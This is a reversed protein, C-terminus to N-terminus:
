ASVHNVVAMYHKGDAVKKGPTIFLSFTGLADNQFSYTGERLPRNASGSFVLLYCDGPRAEAQMTPGHYIKGPLAEVSALRFTLVSVGSSLKFKESVHKAFIAQNWHALAPNSNPGAALLPRVDMTGFLTAALAAVAGGIFARRSLVPAPHESFAPTM